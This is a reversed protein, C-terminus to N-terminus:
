FVQHRHNKGVLQGALVVQSSVPFYRLVGQNFLGDVIAQMVQHVDVSQLVYQLFELFPPHAKM